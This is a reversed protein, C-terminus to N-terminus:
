FLLAQGSKRPLGKKNSMEGGSKARSCRLLGCSASKVGSKTFFRGKKLFTIRSNKEFNKRSLPLPIVPAGGNWNEQTIYNVEV